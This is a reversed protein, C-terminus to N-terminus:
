CMRKCANLSEKCIRQKARRIRLYFSYKLVHLQLTIYEVCYALYIPHKFYNKERNDRHLYLLSSKKKIHFIIEEYNSINKRIKKNKKNKNKKKKLKLQKEQHSSNFTLGGVAM